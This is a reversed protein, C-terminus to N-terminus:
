VVSKRDAAETTGAEALRQAQQDAPREPDITPTSSCGALMASLMIIHLPRKM